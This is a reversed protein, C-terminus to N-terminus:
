RTPQPAPIFGPAPGSPTTAPAKVDVNMAALAPVNVEYKADRKLRELLAQFREQKSENTLLQQIGPRAQELSLDLALQRGALKVIFLGKPTEVLGSVDGVRTLAAAAATVEAGFRATLEDDALFRLDGDLARSQEDHSYERALKGFAAADLPNLARVADLVKAGDDRQVAILSLRVMAPKVYDGRHAQYYTAVQADSVSTSDELEKKLLQQVMVRRAADVVEPDNQLGRRLAEQSLLEFRALGEVYDARQEVTQFRARAYPNMEAFRRTLEADTVTQGSFKAVWTGGSTGEPPARRFDMKAVGPTDCGCFVLLSLLSLRM